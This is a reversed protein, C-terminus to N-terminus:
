ENLIETVDKLDYPREDSKLWYYKDDLLEFDANFYENFIVRFSNVPSISDYLSNKGDNPLYYANLNNFGQRIMEKTPNDWDIGIREGHDSQIIIIPPKESKSLIADVTEIVKKNTFKLQELYFKKETSQDSTKSSFTVPNGDADFVYPDHPISMHAYVFIPQSIRDMIKPIESFTCLIESRKDHYSQRSDSYSLPIFRMVLGKLESLIYQDVCLKENVFLTSGAANTGAYFSVIHYRKSKLNQMVLNKELLEGLPSADTSETGLEESLFNLYQMNLVSPVSLLTYPYNSYNTSPMYFGRKSLASYFDSNDFNFEKQLSVSGAYEDLIIYYIDPLNTQEVDPLVLLELNKSSNIEMNESNYIGTYFVVILILALSVINFIKSANNLKNKTKILYYIGLFFIISFPILLATYSGINIGGIEVGFLETHLYAFGIFLILLFSLVIGAKTSDKFIWRLLILLLFIVVSILLILLALYNIPLEYIFSFILVVPFIAFLFPHIILSKLDWVM